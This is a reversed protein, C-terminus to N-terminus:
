PSSGPSGFPAGIKLKSSIRLRLVSLIFSRAKFATVPVAAVAAVEGV